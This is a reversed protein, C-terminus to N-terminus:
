RGPSLCEDENFVRRKSNKVLVREYLADTAQANREWSFKEVVSKRGARAIEEALSKNELIWNIISALSKENGSQIFFGTKFDEILDQMGGTKALVTPVGAALAEAAALGFPEYHSAFVAVDARKLLRERIEDIVFGIFYVTNELGLERVKERYTELLPGNGAIVFCADPQLNKLLEAAAVLTEFGKERVIRGMSFVVRRGKLFPYLDTEEFDPYDSQELSAGNLIVTIEERPVHFLQSVETEMFDSCVIVEDAFRCLEEEKKFIFQQIDSFIGNNRGFETGHITAILPIDLERSIFEGAAGTMWDHTHVADFEIHRAIRIVEEIVALNFGGMWSLFDSDLENLPAVRHIHVNNEIEYDPLDSPKNTIVHIQQNRRALGESLAQVHRALGGIIHPPYEWSLMLITKKNHNQLDKM